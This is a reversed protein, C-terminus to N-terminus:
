RGDYIRRAISLAIDEPDAQTANTLVVIELRDAPFFANMARAGPLGGNHWILQRGEARAQVWGFAYGIGLDNVRNKTPLMVIGPPPQTSIRVSAPTLLKGGFYAEDWRILDGANSALAGAANGWDMSFNALVSFGNKTWDYGRTVDSGAPVSWRLYQTSTMGAPTLVNTKLFHGYPMGSERAVLLGALAYNTNSYEWKTGPKFHLPKGDVLSVLREVSDPGVKGSMISGLLAKDELYDPLGSTQDLLERVTIENGHPAHPLYRAVHANLDVRGRQVLLMVAAATFQKTISGVPFITQATVPLRRARDRLGYGQAFLLTGGRGIGIELGSIHQKVLANSAIADVAKIQASSLPSAVAQASSCLMFALAAAPMKMGDM